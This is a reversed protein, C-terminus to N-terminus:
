IGEVAATRCLTRQERSRQEAKECLVSLWMHQRSAQWCEGQTHCLSFICTRLPLLPLICGSFSQRAEWPLFDIVSLWSTEKQNKIEAAPNWELQLSNIDLRMKNDRPLRTSVISTSAAVEPLRGLRHGSNGAGHQFYCHPVLLSNRVQRGVGPRLSWPSFYSFFSFSPLGLFCVILDFVIM